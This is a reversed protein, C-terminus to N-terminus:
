RRNPTDERDDGYGRYERHCPPDSSLGPVISLHSQRFFLSYFDTEQGSAWPLDFSKKGMYPSKQIVM